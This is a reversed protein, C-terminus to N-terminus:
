RRDKSWAGTWGYFRNLKGAGMKTGNVKDLRDPILSKLKIMM